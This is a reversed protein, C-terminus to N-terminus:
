DPIKEKKEEDGNNAGNQGIVSDDDYLEDYEDVFDEEGANPVAGPNFIDMNKQFKELL